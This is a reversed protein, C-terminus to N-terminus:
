RDANPLGARLTHLERRLNTRAQADSSDPWFQGALYERRQPAGRHLVLYALLAMARPSRLAVVISGDMAVRQEGLLSIELM